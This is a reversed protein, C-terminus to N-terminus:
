PQIGPGGRAGFHRAAAIAIKGDGSGLDVVFDDKSVEAMRLMRDVMKDPTPIWIVDKGAQGLRPEYSGATAQALAGHSVACSMLALTICRIKHLANM